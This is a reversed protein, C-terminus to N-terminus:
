VYFTFELKYNQLKGLKKQIVGERYARTKHGNHGWAHSVIDEMTDYTQTMCSDSLVHGGGESVHSQNISYLNPEM